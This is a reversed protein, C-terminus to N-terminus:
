LYLLEYNENAKMCWGQTLNRYYGEPCTTVCIGELVLLGPKCFTCNTVNRFDCMDCGPQKCEKCM